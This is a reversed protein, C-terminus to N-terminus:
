EDKEALSAILADQNLWRRLFVWLLIILVITAAIAVIRMGSQIKMLSSAMFYGIFVTVLATAINTALIVPFWRRWSVRAVGTSILVPVTLGNTVKSFLLLLVAKRNIVRKLSDVKQPDVGFLRRHRLVWDIHGFYGLAYWLADAILNGLTVALLVLYINLFGNTTAGAAILISVPGELMVAIVLTLYIWFHPLIQIQSLLVTWFNQLMLYYHQFM